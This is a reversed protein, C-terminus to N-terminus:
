LTLRDQYYNLNCLMRRCIVEGRRCSAESAPKEQPLSGCGVIVFNECTAFQVLGRPIVVKESISFRRGNRQWGVIV